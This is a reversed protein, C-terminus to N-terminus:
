KKDLKIRRGFIREIDKKLGQAESRCKIIDKLFLLHEKRNFFDLNFPKTLTVFLVSLKLSWSKDSKSTEGFTEKIIKEIDKQFRAAKKTSKTIETIKRQITKIKNSEKLQMIVTFLDDANSSQSIVYHTLSPFLFNQDIGIKIDDFWLTDKEKRITDDINTLAIEFPNEIKPISNKQIKTAREPSVFLDLQLENASLLYNKIGSDSYSEDSNWDINLSNPNISKVVLTTNKEFWNFKIWDTEFGNALYNTEDYLLISNIYNSLGEICNTFLQDSMAFYDNTGDLLLGAQELSWNDILSKKLTNM